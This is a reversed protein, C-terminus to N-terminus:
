GTPAFLNLSFREGADLWRADIRMGAAVALKEIEEPSYKISNEIHIAEGEAFAVELDLEDIAVRQDRRSVLTIEVRGEDALYVARHRFAEPDFRGGLERNVRELLNLSFRATAGRLDDYARELVRRDKRLDIGILLRDGSAMADRISRVFAQAGRRDLNGVNSGLWAILKRPGMEAQVHHLGTQYEGAIAHIELGRYDELLEVASTELVSRSIDVPLYRLTGQRRLFAEILLRTKASSGSGLEVLTVRGPIREAVEDARAELIEREARTIYYEPVECIAEFLESGREDYLFRCPIHKPVGTLGREVEAAFSAEAPPDGEILAYRSIAQSSRVEV